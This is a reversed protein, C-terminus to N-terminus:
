KILSSLRWDNVVQNQIESLAPIRGPQYHQACILHAGVKSSIPGAWCPLAQDSNLADLKDAFGIGFIEDIEVSDARVYIDQPLRTNQLLPVGEVIGEELAKIAMDTTQGGYKATYFVRYVFTFQAAEAYDSKHAEYFVDLQKATPNDSTTIAKIAGSLKADMSSSMGQPDIGIGIDDADSTLAKLFKDAVQQNISKINPAYLQSNDSHSENVQQSPILLWYFGIGIGVATLILLLSTKQIM